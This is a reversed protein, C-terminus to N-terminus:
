GGMKKMEAEKINQQAEWKRKESEFTERDIIIDDKGYEAAEFLKPRLRRDFMRRVKQQYALTLKDM